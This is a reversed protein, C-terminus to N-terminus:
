TGRAVNDRQYAWAESPKLSDPPQTVKTLYDGNLMKVLKGVGSSQIRRAGCTRTTGPRVRRSRQRPSSLRCIYRLGKGVWINHVELIESIMMLMLGRDRKCTDALKDTVRVIIRQHPSFSFFRVGFGQVIGCEALGTKAALGKRARKYTHQLYQLIVFHCVENPLM